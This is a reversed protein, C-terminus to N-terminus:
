KDEIDLDAQIERMFQERSVYPRTIGLPYPPRFTYGLVRTIWWSRIRYKIQRLWRLM